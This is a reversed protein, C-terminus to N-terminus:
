KNGNSPGVIKHRRGQKKEREDIIGSEERERKREAMVSSPETREFCFIGIALVYEMCLLLLFVDLL